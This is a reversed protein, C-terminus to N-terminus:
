SHAYYWCGDQLECVSEGEYKLYELHALTEGIAFRMEHVTLQTPFLRQCVEYVTSPEKIHYLTEALRDHHHAILENIRKNADYFPKGHSPIVYEVNLKMMKELSLFYSRLPNNNGHFWYSINPTIKPLIHDTSILVKNEKQYFCVLGDSHGPTFIVEYEEKGIM